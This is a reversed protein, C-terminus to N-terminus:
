ACEGTFVDCIQSCCYDDASCTSGKIMCDNFLDYCQGIGALLLLCILIVLTRLQSSYTNM